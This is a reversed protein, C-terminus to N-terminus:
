RLSKLFKNQIFDTFREKSKSDVNKASDGVFTKSKNQVEKLSKKM